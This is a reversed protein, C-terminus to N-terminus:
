PVLRGEVSDDMNKGLLTGVMMKLGAVTNGHKNGWYYGDAPTVKIITLRPDEKGKEFWNKAVPDWLEDILAPDRAITATGNIQLFGSRSSCQFLLTVFRDSHIEENKHSDAASLFWLNGQDDVKQVSMPRTQIPQSASLHTCFFCTEAKAALEKIKEVAERSLLDHRHENDTLPSSDPTNM